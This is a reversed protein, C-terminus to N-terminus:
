EEVYHSIEFADILEEATIDELPEDYDQYRAALDWFKECLDVGGNLLAEAEDVKRWLDVQAQVVERLAACQEETIQQM